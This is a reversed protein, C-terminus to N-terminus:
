EAHMGGKKPLQKFKPGECIKELRVMSNPEDDSRIKITLIECHKRSCLIIIVPDPLNESFM